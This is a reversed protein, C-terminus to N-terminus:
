CSVAASGCSEALYKIFMAYKLIAIASTLMYDAGVQRGCSVFRHYVESQIKSVLKRTRECRDLQAGNCMRLHM